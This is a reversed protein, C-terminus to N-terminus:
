SFPMLSPLDSVAAELITEKVKFDINRLREEEERDSLKKKGRRV